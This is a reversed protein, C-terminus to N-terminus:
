AHTRVEFDVCPDLALAALTAQAPDITGDSLAAAFGGQAHFNWETPALVRFAAVRATDPAAPGALRVWHVLLGRSMETWAIGEGTALTLAGFAIPAGIALQLLEYLRAALRDWASRPAPWADIRTWPGTEAPADQWTPRLAFGDDGTLAAALAPMTDAPDRLLRLPRCPWVIARADDHVAALWRAVSHGVGECWDAVAQSSTWRAVAADASMGLLRRALWEPLAREAADLAAGDRAGLALLPAERLWTPDAAVRPLRAPLDLSLRQLHEHVTHLRLQRAERALAAADPTRGLAARVARAATARQAMGCLSFVAGVLDPLLAARRGECLRRMAEAGIVPRECRVSMAEGPALVLRGALTALTM